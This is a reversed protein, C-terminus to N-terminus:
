ALGEKLVIEALAAVDDLARHTQMLPRGMKREYLETLKLRRGLEHVYEQVTCVIDKPWPFDKVKARQLEYDVCAKDFPANHAFMQDVATFIIKLEPILEKFTPKGVLMENSIGTIKTIEPSIQQEPNILWTHEAVRAGDQLVMLALEIVRPQKGLEAVSPM